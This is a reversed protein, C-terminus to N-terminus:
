SSTSHLYSRIVDHLLLTFNQAPTLAFRVSTELVSQKIYHKADNCLKMLIEDADSSRNIVDFRSGHLKSYVDAFTWNVFVAIIYYTTYIIPM